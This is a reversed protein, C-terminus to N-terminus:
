RGRVAGTMREAMRKMVLDALEDVDIDVTCRFTIPIAIHEHGFPVQVVGAFPPTVFLPDSSAFEGGSACTGAGPSEGPPSPAATAPQEPPGDPAAGHTAPADERAHAKGIEDACRESLEEAAKATAGIADRVIEDVYLERRRDEAAHGAEDAQCDAAEDKVTERERAAEAAEAVVDQRLRYGGGKGLKHEAQGNDVIRKLHYYALAEKIGAKEAIRPATDYRDTLAELVAKKADSTKQREAAAMEIEERSVRRPLPAATPAAERCASATGRRRPPRKKGGEPHRSCRDLPNYRSLVCICGPRQCVDGEAGFQRAGKATRDHLGFGGLDCGVARPEPAHHLIPTM